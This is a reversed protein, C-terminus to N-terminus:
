NKLLQVIAQAVGRASAPNQGTVLRESVVVHATFDPALIHTAGRATLTDELLFPVINYLGVAKEESNTFAAVQKGKVLYDGNALKINVIGAPGHCVAGVVGGNDYITAAIDALETNDAFDWMTAHGGAYFIAAYDSPKIDSPKKTTQTKAQLAPDHWFRANDADDLNLGDVQTKGGKPSVFDIEFGAENLVFYPHSVESLYFGSPTANDDDAPGKRDHSTLVFLIRKASM